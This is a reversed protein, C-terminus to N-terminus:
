KKAPPFKVENEAIYHCALKTTWKGSGKPGQHWDDGLAYIILDGTNSVKAATVPTKNFNLTKVSNRGEWNWFQIVGDAAASFLWKPNKINFGLANVPYVYNVGNIEYKNAKFILDSSLVHSNTNNGIYSTAKKISSINGRGDISGYAVQTGDHNLSMCSLQSKKQLYSDSVSPKTFNNM